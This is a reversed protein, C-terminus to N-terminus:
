KGDKDFDEVNYTIVKGRHTNVLSAIQNPDLKTHIHTSKVGHKQKHINDVMNNYLEIWRRTYDSLKGKDEIEKKINHKLFVEVQTTVQTLKKTPDEYEEELNLLLDKSFDPKENPKIEGSLVKEKIEKAQKFDIEEIEKAM